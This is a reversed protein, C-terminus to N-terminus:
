VAYSIRMLSQLESTHEESRSAFYTSAVDRILALRFAREAQVTALYQSRAADSLNRVRGWFDLEFGTVGVGISYRTDTIAGVEPIGIASGPTRSRTVDGNAGISSTVLMAALVVKAAILAVTVGLAIPTFWHQLRTTLTLLLVALSLALAPTWGIDIPDGRKLTEAGIVHLFVGPVM